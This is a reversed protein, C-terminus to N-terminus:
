WLFAAARRARRHVVATWLGLPAIELLIAAWPTVISRSLALGLLGGWVVFTWYLLAVAVAPMGLRSAAQYLHGRHAQALNEGAILRRCLTFGVDYLIGGLLLPMVLVSCRTPQQWRLLGFAAVALGAGQSGVDGLFIRARPMNFPLFGALGAALVYATDLLPGGRAGMAAFLVALAMSGAALGNLGDIFNLANTAFMLWCFGAAVSWPCGPLRGVGALVLLSAAAQAALKLMPRFQMLDDLWSVLALLAVGGLIAAADPADGGRLWFVLPGGLLFSVVVGVGGGRPIPRDHASRHGPMDLPGLRIMARVLLASLLSAALCTLALTAPWGIPPPWAIPSPLPAHAM